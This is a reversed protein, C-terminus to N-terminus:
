SAFWQNTIERICYNKLKSSLTTHYVTDLIKSLALCVNMITFKREESTNHTHNTLSTIAEGTSNTKRFGQKCQKIDRKRELNRM